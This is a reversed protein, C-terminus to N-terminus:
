KSLLMKTKWRQLEPTRGSLINPNLADNKELAADRSRSDFTGCYTEHGKELSGKDEVLTQPRNVSYRRGMVVKHSFLLYPYLRHSTRADICWVWSNFFVPLYHFVNLFWWGKFSLPRINLHNISFYLFYIVQSIIAFSCKQQRRNM